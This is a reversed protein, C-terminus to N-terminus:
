PRAARRSPRSPASGRIHARRWRPRPRSTRAIEDAQEIDTPTCMGWARVTPGGIWHPKRWPPSTPPQDVQRRDEDDAEDRGQQDDAGLFARRKLATSTTILIMASVSNTMMVKGIILPWAALKSGKAGLPQPLGSLEDPM